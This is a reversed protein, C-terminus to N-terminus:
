LIKKPKHLSLEVTQQNQLLRTKTVSLAPKNRMTPLSINKLKTKLNHKAKTKPSPLYPRFGVYPCFIEGFNPNNCVPYQM